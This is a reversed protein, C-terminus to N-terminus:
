VSRYRGTQMVAKRCDCCIRLSCVRLSTERAAWKCPTSSAVGCRLGRKRPRKPNKDGETSSINTGRNGLFFVRRYRVSFHISFIRSKTALHLGSPAPRQPSQRQPSHPSHVLPYHHHGLALRPYTRALSSIASKTLSSHRHPRQRHRWPLRQICTQM